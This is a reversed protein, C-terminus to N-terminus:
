LIKTLLADIGRKWNWGRDDQVVKPIGVKKWNQCIDMEEIDLIHFIDDSVQNRSVEVESFINMGILM